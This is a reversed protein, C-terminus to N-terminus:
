RMPWAFRFSRRHAGEDVLDLVIQRRAAAADGPRSGGINKQRKRSRPM